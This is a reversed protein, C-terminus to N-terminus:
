ENSGRFVRMVRDLDYPQEALTDPDWESRPTAFFDGAYVHLAGTFRQIPNTVSHIVDRGLLAAEGQSLAKAGAAEIRGAQDGSIRRWFTNDERGTYIGVVAVMRHDHPMITMHPAWVVNLVTLDDSRYLDRIGAHGPEGLARLVGAPDSVARAVVEQLAQQPMPDSRARRCASVFENPDFSGTAMVEDRLVASM